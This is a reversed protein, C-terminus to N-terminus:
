MKLQTGLHACGLAIQNCKSHAHVHQWCEGRAAAAPLQLNDANPLVSKPGNASTLCIEKHTDFDLFPTAAPAARDSSRQMM